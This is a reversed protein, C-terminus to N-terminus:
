ASSSHLGWDSVDNGDGSEISGIFILLMSPQSVVCVVVSSAVNKVSSSGLRTKQSRQEHSVESELSGLFPDTAELGEEM